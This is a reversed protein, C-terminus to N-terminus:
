KKEFTEYLLKEIAFNYCEESMEKLTKISLDNMEDFVRRYVKLNFKNDLHIGNKNENSLFVASLHSNRVLIPTMSCISVVLSSSFGEYDSCFSSILSHM